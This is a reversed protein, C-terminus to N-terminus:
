HSRTPFRPYMRSAFHRARDRGANGAERDRGPRDLGDRHSEVRPWSVRPRHADAHVNWFLFVIACRSRRRRRRSCCVINMERYFHTCNHILEHVNSEMSHQLAFNLIKRGHPTSRAPWCRIGWARACTEADSAMVIAHPVPRSRVSNQM